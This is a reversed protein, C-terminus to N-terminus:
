DWPCGRIYIHRAALILSYEVINEPIKQYDYHM